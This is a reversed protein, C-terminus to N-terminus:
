LCVCVYVRECVCLAPRTSCLRLSARVCWEFNDTEGGFNGLCMPPVYVIRVDRLRHHTFLTYNQPNLKSDCTIVGLLAVGCWAVPLAAVVSMHNTPNAVACTRAHSLAPITSAFGPVLLLFFLPANLFSGQEPVDRGSQLPRQGEFM